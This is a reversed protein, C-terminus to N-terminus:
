GVKEDVVPYLSWDIHPLNRSKLERVVAVAHETGAGKDVEVFWSVPTVGKLVRLVAGCLWGDHGPAYSRRVLTTCGCRCPSSPASGTASGPLAPLRVLRRANNNNM